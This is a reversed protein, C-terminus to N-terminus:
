IHSFLRRFKIAYAEQSRVLYRKVSASIVSFAFIKSLYYFVGSETFSLRQKWTFLIYIETQGPCFILSGHM